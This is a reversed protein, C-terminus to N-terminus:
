GPTRAPNVFREDILKPAAASVAYEAALDVDDSFGSAILEKGSGCSSLAEALRGRFRAFAAVAIEVEPSRTGPLEALVAGAGILDELCPRLSNDHWREGAPIVSIRPGCKLAHAAVAPANRRCATFVPVGTAGLSLTSGNPSPLVLSSRPPISRLSAPSLTYQGAASRPQALIAGREAAFRAASEDKWRYPFVSAGRAVAIDVATSFSLVDVIVVANSHPQLASLGEGGWECKLDYAAQDFHM